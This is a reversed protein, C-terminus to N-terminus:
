LVMAANRLYKNKRGEVLKDIELQYGDKLSSTIANNRTHRYALSTWFRKIKEEEKKMMKKKMCMDM